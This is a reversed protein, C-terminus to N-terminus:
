WTARLEVGPVSAQGGDATPVTFVTAALRPQLGRGQHVVMGYTALGPVLGLGASLAGLGILPGSADDAPIGVLTLVVGTGVLGTTVWALAVPGRGTVKQLDYAAELSGVTMLVEGVAVVGIASVAGVAGVVLNQESVAVGLAVAGVGVGVGMSVVGATALSTHRRLKVHAPSRAAFADDLDPPVDLEDTGDLAEPEAADAVTPLTSAPFPQLAPPTEAHAISVLASCLLHM